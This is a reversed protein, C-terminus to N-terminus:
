VLKNLLLGTLIFLHAAQLALSSETTSPFKNFAMEIVLLLLWGFKFGGPLKAWHILGPLTWFYWSYFQYHLTRSFVVGVFQSTYLIYLVNAPDGLKMKRWIKWYFIFWTLLTLALLIMATIKSLFVTEPLFKLNVSWHQQFVRSLEFSRHIYAVPHTLLFPLGLILQPLGCFVVIKVIAQKLGLKSSLIFLVAPAFLLANMKVSVALSFLVCSLNWRQSLLFSFSTHCFFVCFCDNFLRLVYISHLRRSLCCAILVWAPLKAIQYSRLVLFLTVIYLGAFVIQGYLINGYTLVKLLSFIYVHGAPYVLPGTDGSLSYYDLQGHLFLEVQQM